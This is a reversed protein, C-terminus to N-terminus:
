GPSDFSRGLRAFDRIPDLEHHERPPLDIELRM